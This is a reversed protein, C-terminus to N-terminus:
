AGFREYVGRQGLDILKVGSLLWCFLVTGFLAPVVASSLYSLAWSRAFDLGLHTRLFNGPARPGGTLVSALLSSAVATAAQAPPAPLFLRALSRAALELAIASPVCALAIAVWILWELANARGLELCAAALLLVTTV